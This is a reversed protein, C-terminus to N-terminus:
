TSIDNLMVEWFTLATEAKEGRGRRKWEIMSRMLASVATCLEVSAKVDVYFLHKKSAFTPFSVSPTLLLLYHEMQQQIIVQHGYLVCVCM